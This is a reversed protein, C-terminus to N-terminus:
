KGRLWENFLKRTPGDLPRMQCDYTTTGITLQAGGKTQMCLDATIGNYTAVHEEKCGKDGLKLDTFTTGRWTITGKGEIVPYLKHHDRCLYTYSDDARASAILGLSAITTILFKRMM